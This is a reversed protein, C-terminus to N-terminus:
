AARPPAEAEAEDSAAPAAPALFDAMGFLWGFGDLGGPARPAEEDDAANM